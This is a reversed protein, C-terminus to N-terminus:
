TASSCWCFTGVARDNGRLRPPVTTSTSAIRFNAAVLVAMGVIAVMPSKHLHWPHLRKGPGFVQWDMINPAPKAWPHVGNDHLARGHRFVGLEEKNSATNGCKKPKLAWNMLDMWMESLNLDMIKFM